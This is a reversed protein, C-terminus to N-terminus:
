TLSESLDLRQTSEANADSVLHDPRGIRWAVRSTEIRRPRRQLGLSCAGLLRCRLGAQRESQRPATGRPPRPPTCRDFSRAPQPRRRGGDRGSRPTTWLPQCIQRLCTMGVSRAAACAGEANRLAVSKSHALRRWQTRRRASLFAEQGPLIHTDVGCEEPGPPWKASSRRM